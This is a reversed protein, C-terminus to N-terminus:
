REFVLTHEERVGGLVGAETELVYRVPVGCRVTRDSAAIAHEIRVIRGDDRAFLADIAFSVSGNSICAEGELPFVLLLARPLGDRLGLGNRGALGRMRDLESEAREICLQVRSVGGEDLIRAIEPCDAGCAAALAVAWSAAARM